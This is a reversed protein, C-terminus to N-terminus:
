GASALGEWRAVEDDHGLREHIEAIREATERALEASGESADASLDRHTLELVDLADDTADLEVLEGALDWAIRVTTDFTPGRVVRYGAHAERLGAAASEHDGLARHLITSNAITELTRWDQAGLHERMLGIAEDYERAARELDGLQRTRKAIEAGLALRLEHGSSLGAGDYADRISRMSELARARFPTREAAKALKARHMDVLALNYRAQLTLLDDDGLTESRGRVIEAYLLEARDLDGRWKLGNALTEKIELSLRAPVRDLEDSAVVGELREILWDPYDPSGRWQEAGTSITRSLGLLASTIEATSGLQLRSERLSRDTAVAGAASAVSFVLLLCAVGGAIRVSRRHRHALKRIVYGASDPGAELADGRLYRRVDKALDLPTAYRERRDKRLARIPIWELERKLRVALAEPRTRRLSAIQAADVGLSSFRTSPRPPDVERIIRRIEDHGARRLTRSDFPLAGTLLEYLLVGLSYVDTRTDIDGPGMEAQEPSMYEPTGILQGLETFVTHGAQTHSIAKAVGFDIVKPIARGGVVAVLVNSPKIDRHIIGKSHAHQVAECVQAFVELRDETSLRHRDCYDTIRDGRVHEMVFYPRGDGTAGADLVRAVNPHDMAALAQREQEFRALVARTDMGPKIVKLAVSQRYPDRREAHYVVGFGGEGLIGLIRYPGIATGIASRIPDQLADGLAEHLPEGFDTTTVDVVLLRSVEERVVPDPEAGLRREREPAPLDACAHFLSEVRRAQDPTM